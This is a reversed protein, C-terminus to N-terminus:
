REWYGAVWTRVEVDRYKLQMRYYGPCVQIISTGKDDRITRYSPTVKIRDYEGYAKARKKETKWHGSVWAKKPNKGSPANECESLIRQPISYYCDSWRDKYHGLDFEWLSMRREDQSCDIRLDPWYIIGLPYDRHRWRSRRKMSSLSFMDKDPLVLSADEICFTNRDADYDIMSSTHEPRPSTIVYSSRTRSRSSESTEIGTGVVTFLGVCVVVALTSLMKKM